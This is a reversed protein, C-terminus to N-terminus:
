RPTASPAPEIQITLGKDSKTTDVEMVGLNGNADRGRITVASEEGSPGAIMTENVLISLHLGSDHDGPNPEEVRKESVREGSTGTRQATTVREILHLSGDRTTGPVDVSYTKVVNQKGEAETESEDSVIRSVEELKGEADLRSVREEKIRHGADQETVTKRTENVKWNGNVDPLSIIKRSEVTHNAGEKRIELTKLAPALGNATPLMVITNTEATDPSVRKTELIERQVPELRGNVDPNSTVRVVHSDGSPLTRREEETVQVLSRAGNIDRAFTRTTTRVTTGDVQVTEKEIDQYPEFYGDAGGLQVSREDLTRAGTQTHSEIIRTPLRTPILNDNRSDTTTTWTKGESCQSDSTQGVSKLTFCTCAASILLIGRGFVLAGSARCRRGTARGADHRTPKHAKLM